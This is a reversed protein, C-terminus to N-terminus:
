DIRNIVTCNIISGLHSSRVDLYVRPLINGRAAFRSLLPGDALSPTMAACCGVPSNRKRKLVASVEHGEILIEVIRVVASLGALTQIATDTV